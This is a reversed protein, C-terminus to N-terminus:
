EGNRTIEHITQKASFHLVIWSIMRVSVVLFGGIAFSFHFIVIPFHDKRIVM